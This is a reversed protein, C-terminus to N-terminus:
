QKVLNHILNDLKRFRSNLSFHIEKKFKNTAEQESLQLALKNKLYEINKASQLEPIGADLMLLFINIIFNGQKRILNYAQTCYDTFNKFEASDKGGMVFAMEETFVFPARERDIGLKKKFNGLFHGFDIHFLHGTQSIMINDPHRDGIGLIYTAVCYGACSRIFNEQASKLNEKGQNNEQLYRKLTDEKLAGLGGGYQKHIRATTEANVVVEIMGVQDGTTIVKYPKMRFDQGADLWIKDMIKLLQLTLQDQRIDDGRKFLIKMELDNESIIKKNNNEDIEEIEVKNITEIWLPKKKSNMCKCEKLNFDTVQIRSDLALSFTPKPLNDRIKGLEEKSREQLKTKDVGQKAENQIIKAVSNLSGNVAVQNAIEKRFSGCVMIFQEILLSFRENFAKVNLQSKLQWFFEHGVVYPNLLSRELLMEALPSFHNREYLLLQTLELMYLAIEDDSFTSIREVAYLRVIENSIHADLLPLADEPQLPSWKKLMLIAEKVQEPDLWDVALLFVQLAQTLTKYHNRSIMLIHKDEPTFEPRKLPDANLLFQLRALDETKPTQNFNKHRESQHTSKYPNPLGMSEMTKEDRLSYFMPEIFKDLQIFLKCYNQSIFEKIKKEDKQEHMRLKNTCGWYENMCSLRGHVRYFPWVNISNLGQQFLEQSNFIPLTSSGIIQYDNSNQAYAKLNFCLRSELPLQSVKINNFSIWQNFRCINGYPVRKTEVSKICTSGNMIIAEISISFPVINLGYYGQIQKMFELGKVGHNVIRTDLKPTVQDKRQKQQEQQLQIDKNQKNKQDKKDKEEKNHKDEKDDVGHRVLTVYAPQTFGNYTAKLANWKPDVAHLLKFVNELGCIRVKFLCDCEGSYLHTNKMNISSGNQVPQVNQTLIESLNQSQKKKNLKLDQMRQHMMRKQVVQNPNPTDKEPFDVWPYWLLIPVEYYNSWDIPTFVGQEMESEKREFIPPFQDAQQNNIPMETLKVDLHDLGRLSTRVRDYNLMPHNGALYERFGKVQLIFQHNQDKPKLAIKYEKYIKRLINKIVEDAGTVLGAEIKLSKCDWDVDNPKKERLQNIYEDLNVNLNISNVKSFALSLNSQCLYKPYKSCDKNLLYSPIKRRQLERAKESRFLWNSEDLNIIKYLDKIAEDAKQRMIINKEADEEIRLENTNTNITYFWKTKPDVCILLKQTDEAM